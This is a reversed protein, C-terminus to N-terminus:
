QVGATWGDLWSPAGQVDVTDRWGRFLHMRDTGRERLQIQTHGRSAAKLAAGRARRGSFVAGSLDDDNAMLMFYKREGGRGSDLPEVVVGAPRLAGLGLRAGLCAGLAARDFALPAHTIGTWVPISASERAGEPAFVLLACRGGEGCSHAVRAGAVDAVHLVMDRAAEHADPDQSELRADLEACTRAAAPHALAALVLLLPTRM